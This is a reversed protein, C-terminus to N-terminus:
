RVRLKMVYIQGNAEYAVADTSAAPYMAIKTDPTPLDQRLTGDIRAAKLTSSVTQHGDDIDVMGVIWDNGLWVPAGLYGLNVKNKGDLDCVFTNCGDHLAMYVIHKNDPSISPWIYSGDGNPNLVIRKNGRYLVLSRDEIAVILSEEVPTRMDTALRKSKITKGKAIRLTSGVFTFPYLQRSAKDIRSVKGNELNISKISTFRRNNKYEVERFVVVKGGDSIQPYYGANEVDTLRTMQGSSLDYKTLGKFNAGTLLLYDGTPSFKPHYFGKGQTEPLPTISLVDIQATALQWGCCMAMLAIVLKKM